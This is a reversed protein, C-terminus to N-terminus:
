PLARQIHRGSSQKKLFKREEWYPVSSLGGGRAQSQMEWLHCPGTSMALDLIVRSLPDISSLRIIFVKLPPKFVVLCVPCELIKMLQNKLIGEEMTASRSLRVPRPHVLYEHLKRTELMVKLDTGLGLPTIFKCGAVTCNLPMSWIVVMAAGREQVVKQINIYYAIYLLLM